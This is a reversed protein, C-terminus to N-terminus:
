REDRSADLAELISSRPIPQSPLDALLSANDARRATETLEQLAFTSLPLGARRALLELREAVAEPVHRIYLTRM